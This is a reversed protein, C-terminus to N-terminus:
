LLGGRHRSTTLKENLRLTLNRLGGHVRGITITSYCEDGILWVDDGHVTTAEPVQLVGEHVIEEGDMSAMRQPTEDPTWLCDAVTVANGQIGCPWRTFADGHCAQLAAVARAGFITDFQSAM